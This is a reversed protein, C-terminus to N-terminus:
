VLDVDLMGAVREERPSCARVTRGEAIVQHNRVIVAVPLGADAAM